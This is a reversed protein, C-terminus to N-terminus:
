VKNIYLALFYIIPLCFLLGDFRDLVGGHGPLLAGFDKVGLDRKILSESLDGFCTGFAVLIGLVFASRIDWPGIFSVIILGAVVSAVMGGVTGAVTKNPSVNPAIPQQGFQSGVFYGVVDYAVVCIVGGVLLGIGNGNPAALTLGAFGGLGGVYAFALLTTAISVTPRGPTVGWLFWLMTFITMLGFFVAYSGSGYNYAAIPLLTAGLLALLNAPRLGRQHLTTCLELTAVAVVVAALLTTAATGIQFCV